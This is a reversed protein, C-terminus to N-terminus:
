NGPPRPLRGLWCDPQRHHHHPRQRRPIGLGIADRLDDAVGDAIGALVRRGPISPGGEGRPGALVASQPHQRDLFELRVLKAVREAPEDKQDM